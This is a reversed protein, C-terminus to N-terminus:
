EKNLKKGIYSVGYQAGPYDKIYGHIDAKYGDEKEMVRKYEQSIATVSTEGLDRSELCDDFWGELRIKYTDEGMKVVYEDDFPINESMFEELDKQSTANFDPEPVKEPAKEQLGMIVDGKDSVFVKAGNMTIWRGEVDAM